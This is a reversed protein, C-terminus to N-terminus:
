LVPLEEAYSNSHRCSQFCDRHKEVPKKFLTGSQDKSHDLSSLNQAMKERLSHKRLEFNLCNGRVM